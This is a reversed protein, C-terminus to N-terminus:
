QDKGVMLDYKADGTEEVMRIHQKAISLARDAEITTGGGSAQQLQHVIAQAMWFQAWLQRHIIQVDMYALKAQRETNM